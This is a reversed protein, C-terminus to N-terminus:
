TSKILINEDPDKLIVFKYTEPSQHGLDNTRIVTVRHESADSITCSFWDNEEKDYYQWIGKLYDIGQRHAIKEAEERSTARGITYGFITQVQWSTADKVLVGLFADDDERYLPIKM